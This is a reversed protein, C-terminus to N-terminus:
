VATDDADIRIAFGLDLGFARGDSRAAGNTVTWGFFGNLQGVPVFLTQDYGVDEEWLSVGAELSFRFNGRESAPHQPAQTAPAGPTQAAIPREVPENVAIPAAPPQAYATGPGPVTATIHAATAPSLVAVSATSAVPAPTSAPGPVVVPTFPATPFTVPVAATAAPPKQALALAPVFTAFVAALAIIRTNM